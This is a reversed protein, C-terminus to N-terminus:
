GGGATTGAAEAAVGRGSGVDRRPRSLAAPISPALVVGAEFLVLEDIGGNGNKFVGGDVALVGKATIGFSTTRFEADRLIYTCREYHVQGM